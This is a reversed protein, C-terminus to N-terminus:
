FFFPRITNLSGLQGGIFGPVAELVLVIVLSIIACSWAKGASIGSHLRLGVLILALMWVLYLDIFPLIAALFRLVGTADTPAFGALGPTTILQKTVLMGGIQVLYRIAFPLSSWGVLNLATTMTSTSGALTLSLHLVAALILWGAWIKVLEGVLPLVHTFTTTATVAASQMYQQQQDPSWYQFDPPLQPAGSSAATAKLPGAVLVWAVALISLLLLPTQWTGRGSELAKALLQRPKLFTPLIWDLHLKGPKSLPLSDLDTEM